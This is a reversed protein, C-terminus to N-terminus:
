YSRTYVVDHQQLVVLGAEPPISTFPQELKGNLVQDLLLIAYRNRNKKWIMNTTAQCLKRSWQEVRIREQKRLASYRNEIELMYIVFERDIKTTPIAIKASNETLKNKQDM